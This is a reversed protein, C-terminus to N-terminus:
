KELFDHFDVFVFSTIGPPRYPYLFYCTFSCDSILISRSLSPSICTKFQNSVLFGVGGGRGPHHPQHYFFYDPPCIDSIYCTTNHPNLWTETLTLIDLTKSRALDTISTSKNHVYRVNSTALRVNQMIPHGTNMHTAGALQIRLTHNINQSKTIHM